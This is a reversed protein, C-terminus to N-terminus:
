PSTLKLYKLWSRMIAPGYALTIQNEVAGAQIDFIAQQFSTLAGLSYASTVKGDLTVKILASGAPNSIEATFHPKQITLTRLEGRKAVASVLVPRTSDRSASLVEDQLRMWEESDNLEVVLEFDVEPSSTQARTPTASALLILVIWASLWRGRQRYTM